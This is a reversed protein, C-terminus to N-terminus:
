VESSSIHVLHAIGPISHGQKLSDPSMLAGTAIFLVNNLEKKKFKSLILSSFVTASCGCGSAGSHVDQEKSNFIMLGCDNYNKSMDFGLSNMYDSLIGHGEIGLDGTLILDYDSPSTGSQYFYKSITDIAAPAMAAGMNNADTIGKDIVMGPLVDVIYPGRGRESLIVAGAGTVTRQSTPPRQGGYELPFRFQREASCFHSSTVIACRRFIGSSVNAAGLIMGEVFTSCAGYIGFFPINFDILGYASSACQNMLDGAFLADIDNERLNCKSLAINLALRQMEGESKEWSNMSFRDTPDHLDFEDRLPGESEKKGVVSAGSIISPSKKLRIISM